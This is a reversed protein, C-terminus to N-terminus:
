QDQHLQDKQRVGRSEPLCRCAPVCGSHATIPVQRGGGPWGATGWPVSEAGGTAPTCRNGAATVGSSPSHLVDSGARGSFLLVRQPCALPVLCTLAPLTKDSREPCLPLSPLGSLALSASFAVCHAPQLALAQLSTSPSVPWAEM